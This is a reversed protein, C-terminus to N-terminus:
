NLVNWASQPDCDAQVLWMMSAPERHEAPLNLTDLMYTVNSSSSSSFQTLAVGSRGKM